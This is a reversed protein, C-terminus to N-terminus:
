ERAAGESPAPIPNLRARAAGIVPLRWELQGTPVRYVHKGGRHSSEWCLMHFMTSELATIVEENGSWGGTIYTLTLAGDADTATTFSGYDDNFLDAAFDILENVTRSHTRFSRLAEDTPYGHPDTLEGDFTTPTQTEPM